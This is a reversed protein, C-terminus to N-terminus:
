SFGLEAKINAFSQQPELEQRSPCNGEEHSLIVSLLERNEWRLKRETGSRREAATM